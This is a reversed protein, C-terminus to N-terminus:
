FISSNLKLPPNKGNVPAMDRVIHRYVKGKRKHTMKKQTVDTAYTLICDLLSCEVSRQKTVPPDLPPWEPWPGVWFGSLPALM